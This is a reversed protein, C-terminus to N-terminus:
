RVLARLGGNMWGRAHSEMMVNNREVGVRLVDVGVVRSWDDSVAIVVGSV